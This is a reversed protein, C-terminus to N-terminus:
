IYKELDNRQKYIGVSLISLVVIIAIFLQSNGTAPIYEKNVGVSEVNVSEQDQSLAASQDAQQSDEAVEENSQTETQGSDQSIQNEVAQESSDISTASGSGVQGNSDNSEQDQSLAAPQDAQQSDEAVEENSQTETQGSGDGEDIPQAIEPNQQEANNQLGLDLNESTVSNGDDEKALRNQKEAYAFTGILLMAIILFALLGKVLQSSMLWWWIKRIGKM